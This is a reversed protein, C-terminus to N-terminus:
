KEADTHTHTHEIYQGSFFHNLGTIFQISRTKKGNIRQAYEMNM